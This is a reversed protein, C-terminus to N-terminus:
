FKLQPHPTLCEKLKERMFNPLMFAGFHIDENYYKFRIGSNKIKDTNVDRFPCLGKSAYAFSWYGSPYSLNSYNYIHTKKFTQQLIGLLVKQMDNHYYPSECQATVIGNDNLLKAVDKYFNINFLPTAPGIPDSSDIIIVDFREKSEAVYKVGDQILVKAKPNHFECATQILHEKCAEVVVSDIEVMVCKEVSEHRLVERLTGGDGGGIILVNKPSPHTFLPVHTIMEHYIHEDKETAMVLGDHILIRGHSETEIIDVHQFESKQSFLLKKTKFKLGVSGEYLEEFWIAPTNTDSM